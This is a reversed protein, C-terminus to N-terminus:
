GDKQMAALSEAELWAIFARTEPRTVVPHSLVHYATDTKLLGGPFPCVLRGAALDDLVFIRPSLAVGRGHAAAEIAHATQDFRPGSEAGPLDLGRSALWERWGPHPEERAGSQVHILTRGALDEPRRLPDPGELLSPACVPAVDARLLRASRVGAYDGRGYRVAADVRGGAVDSLEMEASVWVDIEPYDRSFRWLRPALWKAAFSPPVSVTLAAHRAPRYIVDGAQQLLGFGERLLPYLAAGTETLEVKRGERRFLAAGAHQELLRIQQSVAGPTVSLEEAARSFNLLRAAAEFTRLANLPPLRGPRPMASAAADKQEPDTIAAGSM